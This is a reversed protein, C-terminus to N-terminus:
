DYPAFSNIRWTGDKQKEIDMAYDATQYVEKKLVYGVVGNEESTVKLFGKPPNNEGLQYIHVISYNMLALTDSKVSGSSYLPVGNRLCVCMSYWEQDKVDKFFRDVDCYPMRFITDSSQFAGGLNVIRNMDEWLFKGKPDGWLYELDKFGYLGGGHSSIVNTDMLSYLTKVDRNKIAQKLLNIFETLSKNGKSENVPTISLKELTPITRVDLVENAGDQATETQTVSNEIVPYATEKSQCSGLLIAGLSIICVAIKM